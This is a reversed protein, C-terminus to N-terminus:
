NVKSDLHPPYDFSSLMPEAAGLDREVLALPPNPPAVPVGVVSERRGLCYKISSAGHVGATDQDGGRRNPRWRFPILENNM